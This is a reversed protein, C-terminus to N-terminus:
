NIFRYKDFWNEFLSKLEVVVKISDEIIKIKEIENKKRYLALVKEQKKLYLILNIHEKKNLSLLMDDSNIIHSSFSQKNSFLLRNGLKDIKNSYYKASYLRQSDKDVSVYLRPHHHENKKKM